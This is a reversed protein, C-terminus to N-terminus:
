WVSSRRQPDGLKSDGFSGSRSVFREVLDIGSYWGSGCAWLWLSLLGWRFPGHKLGVLIQILWKKRPHSNKVKNSRKGSKGVGIDKACSKVSLRSLIILDSLVECVTPARPYPLIPFRDETWTLQALHVAPAWLYWTITFGLTVHIPHNSCTTSSTKLSSASALAMATPPWWAFPKNKNMFSFYIQPKLNILIILLYTQLYSLSFNDTILWNM